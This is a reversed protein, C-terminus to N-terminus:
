LGATEDHIVSITPVNSEKTVTIRYLTVATLQDVAMDNEHGDQFMVLLRRNDSVEQVM